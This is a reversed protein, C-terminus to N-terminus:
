SIRYATSIRRGSYRCALHGYIFSSIMGAAVQSGIHVLRFLASFLWAAHGHHEKDCGSVIDYLRAHTTQSRM